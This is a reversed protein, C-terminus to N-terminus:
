AFCVKQQMERELDEHRRRLGSMLDAHASEMQSIQQQHRQVQEHKEREEKAQTPTHTTHSLPHTHTTHVCSLTRALSPCALCNCLCMSVCVQLCKRVFTCADCLFCQRVELQKKLDRIALRSSDELKQRISAEQPLTHTLHTHAIHM